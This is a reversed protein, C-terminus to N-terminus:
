CMVTAILAENDCQLVAKENKLPEWNGKLAEMNGKLWSSLM